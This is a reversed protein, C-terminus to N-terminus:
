PAACQGIHIHEHMTASPPLNTMVVTVRLNTPSTFALTATGPAGGPSPPDLPANVPPAKSVGEAANHEVSGNALTTATPTFADRAAQGAALDAQREQAGITNADSQTTRPPTATAPDVVQVLGEMGPHLACHYVFNGAASFTLTYANDGPAPTRIGSSEQDSGGSFTGDGTGPAEPDGPPTYFDVTHVGLFNWTISDGTSITVLGPFYSQADIGTPSGGGVAVNLNTAAHAPAVSAAITVTAAALSWGLLAISAAISRFVRGRRRADMPQPDDGDPRAVSAASRGKLRMGTGRRRDADARATWAAESSSPVYKPIPRRVLPLGPKAGETTLDDTMTVPFPAYTRM